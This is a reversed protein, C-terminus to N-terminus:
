PESHFFTLARQARARPRRRGRARARRGRRRRGRVGGRRARRAPAGRRGAHLGGRGAPPDRRRGRAARVRRRDAARRHAPRRPPCAVAALTEFTETLGPREAVEYSLEMAEHLLEVAAEVDPEDDDLLFRGLTRLVSSIHAPDESIRALDLSETLLEIAQEHHGAGHHAIGLNQVVLSLARPDDLARMYDVSEAYHAIAADFDAAFLALTGLNSGVRAARYGDDLERALELSEELLESARRRLRGARRGGRRRRQAGAPAARAPRRRLRARGTVLERGEVLSGRWIWYRWAAACLVLAVAADGDAAAFAIAARVNDRDADMRDLWDGMTASELGSEGDEFVEGFHRAHARRADDLRGGSELLDHAYERVTELM